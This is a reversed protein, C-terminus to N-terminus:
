CPGFICIRFDQFPHPGIRVGGSKGTTRHVTEVDEQSPSRGLCSGFGIAERERFRNRRSHFESRQLGVSKRMVWSVRLEM